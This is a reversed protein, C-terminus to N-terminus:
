TRIKKFILLILLLLLTWKTTHKILQFKLCICCFLGDIHNGCFALLEFVFNFIIQPVSLIIEIDFYISNKARQFELGPKAFDIDNFFVTIWCSM